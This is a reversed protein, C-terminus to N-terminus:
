VSGRKAVLKIKQFMLKGCSSLKKHLPNLVYWLFNNKGTPNVVVPYQKQQHLTGSPSSLNM